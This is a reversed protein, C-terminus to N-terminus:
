DRERFEPFTGQKSNFTSVASQLDTVNTLVTMLVGKEKTATAVDFGDARLQQIVGRYVPSLYGEIWTHVGLAASSSRAVVIIWQLTGKRNDRVDIMAEIEDPTIRMAPVDIVVGFAM